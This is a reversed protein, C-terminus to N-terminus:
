TQMPQIGGCYFLAGSQGLILLEITLLFQFVNQKKFMHLHKAQTIVNPKDEWRATDLNYLSRVIIILNPKAWVLNTEHRYLQALQQQRQEQLFM